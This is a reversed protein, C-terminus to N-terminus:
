SVIKLTAKCLIWTDHGYDTEYFCKGCAVFCIWIPIKYGYYLEANENTKHVMAPQRYRAHSVYCLSPVSLFSSHLLRKYTM